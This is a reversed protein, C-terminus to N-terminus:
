SLERITNTQLIRQNEFLGFFQFVVRPFETRYQRTEDGLVAGVVSLARGSHYGTVRRVSIRFCGGVFSAVKRFAM